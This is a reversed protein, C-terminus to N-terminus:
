NLDGSIAAWTASPNDLMPYHGAGPIKILPVGLRNLIGEGEMWATSESGRLYFTLSDIEGIATTIEGSESSLVLREAIQLLAIGNVQKFGSSWLILDNKPHRSRLKMGLVTASNARLRLLWAAYVAEPKQCIQRSWESDEAILNGEILYISKPSINSKVIEPLLASSMSHMILTTKSWDLFGLEDRISQWISEFSYDGIPSNGHGLLDPCFVNGQVLPLLPIWITNSLGLGHLFVFNGDNKM